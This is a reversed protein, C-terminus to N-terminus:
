MHKLPPQPLRSSLCPLSQCSAFIDTFPKSRCFFLVLFPHIPLGGVLRPLHSPLQHSTLSSHCKTNDLIGEGPVGLRDRFSFWPPLWRTLNVLDSPKMNNWSFGFVLFNAKWSLHVTINQSAVVLRKHAILQIWWHICVQMQLQVATLLIAHHRGGHPQSPVEDFAGLMAKEPQSESLHSPLLTAAFFHAM